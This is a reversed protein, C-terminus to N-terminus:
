RKKKERIFSAIVELYFFNKKWSISTTESNEQAASTIFARLKDLSTIDTVVVMCCFPCGHHRTKNTNKKKVFYSYVQTCHWIEWLNAICSIKINPWCSTAEGLLQASKDEASHGSCSRTGTPALPPQYLACPTNGSWVEYAPPSHLLHQGVPSLSHVKNAIKTDYFGGFYIVGSWLAHFCSKRSARIILMGLFAKRYTQLLSDQQINKRGSSFGQIRWPPTFSVYGQWKRNRDSM